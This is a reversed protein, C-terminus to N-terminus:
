LSQKFIYFGFLFFWLSKAFIYLAYVIHVGLHSAKTFM